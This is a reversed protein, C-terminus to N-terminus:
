SLDVPWNYWAKADARLLLVIGTFQIILAAPFYIMTTNTAAPSLINYM